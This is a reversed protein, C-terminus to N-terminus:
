YGNKKEGSFEYSSIKNIWGQRFQPSIGSVYDLSKQKITDFLNQANSKNIANVVDDSYPNHVNVTYGLDELSAQVIENSKAPKGIYLAFIMDAVDQSKLDDGRIAGWFEQTFVNQAIEPTIARMEAESPPYGLYQEYAVASIGRNTGVLQGLSNYNPKDTSYNQYGGEFNFTKALIPAFNAMKEQTYVFPFSRESNINVPFSFIFLFVCLLSNRLLM